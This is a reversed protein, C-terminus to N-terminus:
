GEHSRVGGRPEVRSTQDRGQLGGDGAIGGVAECTTAGGAPELPVELVRTAQAEVEGGELAEGGSLACPRVGGAWSSAGDRRRAGRGRRSGRGDRGPSARWPRRARGTPNPP